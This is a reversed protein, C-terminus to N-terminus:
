SDATLRTTGDPTERTTGDPTQREQRRQAAGTITNFGLTDATAGPKGVFTPSATITNFGLTDATAGPKAVYTADASITDFGFTDLTTIGHTLGRTLYLTRPSSQLEYVGVDGDTTPESPWLYNTLDYIGLRIDKGDRTTDWETRERSLEEIQETSANRAKPYGDQQGPLKIEYNSVQEDDENFTNGNEQYFEGRVLETYDGNDARWAGLITAQITLELHVFGRKGDQQINDTSLALRHYDKWISPTPMNKPTNAQLTWPSETIEEIIFQAEQGLKDEDGRLQIKIDLSGPALGFDDAVNNGNNVDTIRKDLDHDASLPPDIVVDHVNDASLLDGNIRWFRLQEPV